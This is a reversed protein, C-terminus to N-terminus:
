ANRQLKRHGVSLDRLTDCIKYFVVFGFIEQFRSGEKWSSICRDREGGSVGCFVKSEEFEECGM